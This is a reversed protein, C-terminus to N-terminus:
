ANIISFYFTFTTKAKCHSALGKVAPPKVDEQEERWQSWLNKTIKAAVALFAVVVLLWLVRDFIGLERDFIYGIGHISSQSAYETTTKTLALKKKAGKMTNIM